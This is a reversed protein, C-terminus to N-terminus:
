GGGFKIHDIRDLFDSKTAFSGIARLAAVLTFHANLIFTELEKQDTLAIRHHIYQSRLHYTDRVNRAVKQREAPGDVLLFAMHEGVSQQIPEGQDKLLLSELASCTYVLQDNPDSLTIGKSYALLASRVSKQFQNLEEDIVLSGAANFGKEGFSTLEANTLRWGPANSVSQRTFALLVGQDTLKLATIGPVYESGLVACACIEWPTYSAPCFFRLCGVAAHGIEVARDVAYHPDAEVQLAVAALGQVDERLKAVLKAIHPADVAAANASISSEYQDLLAKTIPELRVPGFSFGQQVELDYVPIWM